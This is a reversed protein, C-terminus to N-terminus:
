IINSNLNFSLKMKNVITIKTIDIDNHFGKFKDFKDLIKNSNMENGKFAHQILFKIRM